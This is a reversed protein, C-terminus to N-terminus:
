WPGTTQFERGVLKLNEEERAEKLDLCFFFFVGVFCVFFGFGGEWFGLCFLLLLLLLLLM